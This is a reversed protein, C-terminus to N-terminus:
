AYSKLFFACLIPSFILTAYIIYNIGFKSVGARSKSPNRHNSEIFAMVERYQKLWREEQTM